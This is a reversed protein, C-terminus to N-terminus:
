GTLSAVQRDSRRQPLIESRVALLLCIHAESSVVVRQINSVLHTSNRRPSVPASVRRQLNTEDSDTNYHDNTATTWHRVIDMHLSFFLRHWAKTTFNIHKKHDCDSSLPVHSATALHFLLHKTTIILRRQSPRISRQRTSTIMTKEKGCNTQGDDDDNEVSDGGCLENAESARERSALGGFVQYEGVSKKQVYVSTIGGKSSLLVM